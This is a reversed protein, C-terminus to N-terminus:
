SGLRSSSLLRSSCRRYSAPIFPLSPVGLAFPFPCLRRARDTDCLSPGRAGLGAREVAELFRPFGLGSIAILRDFSLFGTDAFFFLSSPGSFLPILRLSVSGRGAGLLSSSSTSPPLGAFDLPLGVAGFRDTSSPSNRCKGRYLIM